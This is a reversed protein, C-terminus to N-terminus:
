VYFMSNFQKKCAPDKVNVQGYPCHRCASGCCTGRQRHAFETLVKYGSAPDVYIRRRAQCAKLHLTYVALEEETLLKETQLITEQVNKCHNVTNESDKRDAKSTHIQLSGNAFRKQNFDQQLCVRLTSMVARQSHQFRGLVTCM